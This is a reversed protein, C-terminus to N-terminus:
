QWVKDAIKQAPNGSRLLGHGKERQLHGHKKQSEHQVWVIVHQVMMLTLHDLSPRYGFDTMAGTSYTEVLSIRMGGLMPYFKPASKRQSFTATSESDLCVLGRVGGSFFPCIIGEHNSMIFFGKKPLKTQSPVLLHSHVAISILSGCLFIWGGFETNKISTWIGKVKFIARLQCLSGHWVFLFM